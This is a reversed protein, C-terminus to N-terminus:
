GSQDLWISTIDVLQSQPLYVANRVRPSHYRPVAAATALIPVVPVDAMVRRDIAHWLAEARHPDGERLAAAILRDVEPDSYGGYNATGRADNSEFLPQVVARGNNGYWDPTWGATAIDWVGARSLEPDSLVSAYYEAQPYTKVHVDIGITALDAAISRLVSLHVDSDQVAAILTCGDGYGADVLLRRAKARDGWDGPTPYPDWDRFGVSGPPIASRMPRAPADLVSFIARVAVKDVAYAVARRVLRHRVAGGDNPSRLNFVLYPNPAYGPFSPPLGAPTRAWSVSALSWALDVESTDLRCRLLEPPVASTRIEVADVFQGRVLDSEPSWAPNRVLRIQGGDGGGGLRYPGCSRLRTGLEPSGPVFADYEVPAPSAFSMALIHPFDNAPQTLRFVVTRDDRARVGPIDHDRQFRALAPATPVQGEFAARYAACYERMGLVTSTFYGLAGPGMVPNGLRKFGRVVDYATVPRPPDTDWAPGTRLRVTYTLGDRSIGGNRVTPLDEALDAVPTFRRLADSLDAAAPYTFLQRTLARLIQASATDYACATDLHGIGRPGLLRLTGGYRPEGVRSTVCEASAVDLVPNTPM